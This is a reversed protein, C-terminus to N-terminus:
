GSNNAWNAIRRAASLAGTERAPDRRRRPCALLAPLQDLWQGDVFHQPDIRLGPLHEQVWAELPPSEPFRGRPIYAFPLGASWVEAITSYGLKGLVADAAHILDPHYFDSRHPLRVVQGLRHPEQCSGPIVLWYDSGQRGLHAALASFDWEIGGMTVLVMAADQPVGLSRRLASRGLRPLRSVPPCHYAGSHPNCFPEVQLRLDATTFSTELRDAFPAFAPEADLYGRYIWDWTFNEVLAAPYGGAQAVDLGLPSIDAVLHTIQQRRLAGLLTEVRHEPSPVWEALQRLTEPLDEELANHQVLGLDTSEAHVRTPHDLSDTFFWEPVASWIEIELQPRLHGLANIIACSRAAHGFGHSSIFYALKSTPEERDSSADPVRRM